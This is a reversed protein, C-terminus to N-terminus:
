IGTTRAIQSVTALPNSAGLFKPGAQAVWPSMNGVFFATFKNRCLSLELFNKDTMCLVRPEVGLAAYFPTNYYM